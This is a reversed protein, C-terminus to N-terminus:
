VEGIRIGNCDLPPLLAPAFCLNFFLSSRLLSFYLLLASRRVWRIFGGLLKAKVERTKGRHSRVAQGGTGLAVCDLERPPETSITCRRPRAGAASRDLEAPPAPSRRPRTGVANHANDRHTGTGRKPVVNRPVLITDYRNESSFGFADWIHALILKCVYALCFSHFIM